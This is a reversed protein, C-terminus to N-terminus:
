MFHMTHNELISSGCIFGVFQDYKLESCMNFQHIAFKTAIIHIASIFLCFFRFFFHKKSSYKDCGNNRSWKKVRIFQTVITLLASSPYMYIVKLLQLVSSIVVIFNVFHVFVSVLLLYVEFQSQTCFAIITQQIGILHNLLSIAM